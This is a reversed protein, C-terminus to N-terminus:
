KVRELREHLSAASTGAIRVVKNRSTHGSLISVQSRRIELLESLFSICAENARGDVPVATLAIKLAGGLEGLVADRKARPQVRVAFTIGVSTENISLV